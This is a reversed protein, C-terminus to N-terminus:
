MTRPCISTSTRRVASGSCGTASQAEVENWSVEVSDIGPTVQLEGPRDTLTPVSKNTSPTGNAANTRTATVRVIYATGSTLGTITYKRNEASACNDGCDIVARRETDSYEEDGSKWQVIYGNANAASDWQVEFQNPQITANPATLSHVHGPPAVEGVAPATTTATIVSWASEAELSGNDDLDAFAKVRITYGTEFTLGTLTYSPNATATVVVRDEAENYSTATSLKWQLSYQDENVELVDVADWTVAISTSSTTAALNTPAAVPWAPTTVELEPSPKGPDSTAIFDGAADVRGKVAMVRFKYDTESDLGTITRFCNSSRCGVWEQRSADYDQTGSKWQVYYYEADDAASWSLQLRDPKLSSLPLVRPRGVPGPPNEYDAPLDPTTATADASPQFAHSNSDLAIVRVTYQTGGNLGYITHSTTLVDVEAHRLLGDYEETGSKWQVWYTQANTLEDWTVKIQSYSGTVPAAAVNTVPGGAVAARVTVTVDDTDSAAGDSATLRLTLTAADDAAGPATFYSYDTDGDPDPNITVDGSPVSPTFTYYSAYSGTRGESDCSSSWSGSIAGNGSVGSM